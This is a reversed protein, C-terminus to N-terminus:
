VRTPFTTGFLKNSQWHYISGFPNLVSVGRIRNGSSGGQSQAGGHYDILQQERGRIADQAFDGWSSRDLQLNGFGRLRMHHREFRNQVLTRADGFGSTRGSYVVGNANTLTYTVYVRTLERLALAGGVAVVVGTSSLLAGEGVVAVTGNRLGNTIVFGFLPTTECPTRPPDCADPSLGYPDSYSVPDGNAFGYANLGGALGIPDEQTFRGTQPDYYRNRMYLQGTLDRKNQILSGMWSLPGVASSRRSLHTMWLYAAPWEM